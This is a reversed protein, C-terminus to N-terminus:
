IDPLEVIGHLALALQVARLLHPWDPTPSVDVDLGLVLEVSLTNEGTDNEAILGEKVGGCQHVKPAPVTQM